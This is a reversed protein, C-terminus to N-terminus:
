SPRAGIDLFDPHQILPEFALEAWTQKERDTYHAEIWPAAEAADTALVFLQPNRLGVVADILLACGVRYKDSILLLRSSESRVAPAGGLFASFDIVSYLNGRVNAVGVYWTRTLPVSAITPVPIVEGTDVLDVLWRRNGAMIGLKSAPRLTQLDALQASLGRQYDRLSIPEAV